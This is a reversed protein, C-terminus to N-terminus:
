SNRSDCKTGELRHLLGQHGWGCIVWSRPQNSLQLQCPLEQHQIGQWASLETLLKRSKEQAVELAESISCMKFTHEQFTNRPLHISVQNTLLLISEPSPTSFHPLLLFNLGNIPHQMCTFQSHLLLPPLCIYACSFGWCIPYLSVFRHCPCFCQKQSQGYPSDSYSTILLWILNACRSPLSWNLYFWSLFNDFFGLNCYSFFLKVFCM